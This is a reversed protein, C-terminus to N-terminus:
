VHFFELQQICPILYKKKAHNVGIKVKPFFLFVSFSYNKQTIVIIIFERSNTTAM